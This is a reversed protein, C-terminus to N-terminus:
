AHQYCVLWITQSNLPWEKILDSFASSVQSVAHCMCLKQFHLKSWLVNPVNLACFVSFDLPAIVHSDFAPWKNLNHWHLSSQVSLFICSVIIINPVFTVLVTILGVATSNHNLAFSRSPLHICMYNYLVSSEGKRVSEEGERGGERRGERRWGEGKEWSRVLKLTFFSVPTLSIVGFRRVKLCQGHPCGACKYKAPASTTMRMRMECLQAWPTHFLIWGANLAIHITVVCYM